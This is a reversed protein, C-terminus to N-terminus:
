EKVTVAYAMVRVFSYLVIFLALSTYLFKFFTSTVKLETLSYLFAFAFLVPVFLLRKLKLRKNNVAYQFVFVSIVSTLSFVLPRFISIEFLNLTLAHVSAAAYTSGNIIAGYITSTNNSYVSVNLFLSYFGDTICRAISFGGAACATALMVTVYPCNKIQSSISLSVALVAAIELTCKIASFGISFKDGGISVTKFLENIIIYAAAGYIILKLVSYFDFTEIKNYLKLTYIFTIPIVLSAEAILVPAFSLIGRVAMFAATLLLMVALILFATLGKKIKRKFDATNGVRMSGFEVGAEGKVVTGGSPPASDARKNGDNEAAASNQRQTNSQSDGIDRSYFSNGDAGVMPSFESVAINGDSADYSGVRLDDNM